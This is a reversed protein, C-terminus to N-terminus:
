MWHILL